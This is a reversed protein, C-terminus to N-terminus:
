SLDMNKINDNFYDMDSLENPKLSYSKRKFILDKARRKNEIEDYDELNAIIGVSNLVSIKQQSSLPFISSLSNKSYTFALVPLTSSINITTCFSFPIKVLYFHSLGLTTMSSPANQCM